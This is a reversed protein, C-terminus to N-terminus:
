WHDGKTEELLQVMKNCYWIAKKVDQLPNNKFWMRHLYKLANGQCYGITDFKGLAAEICDITELGGQNYHFPKEVSDWEESAYVGKAAEDWERPTAENLRKAGM